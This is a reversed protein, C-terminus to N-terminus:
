AYLSMGITLESLGTIVRLVTALQIMAALKCKTGIRQSKRCGLLIDIDSLYLSDATGQVHINIISIDPLITM